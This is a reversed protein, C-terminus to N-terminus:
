RRRRHPSTSEDPSEMTWLHDPRQDFLLDLRVAEAPCPGCSAQAPSCHRRLEPASLDKGGRRRQPQGPGRPRPGGGHGSPCPARRRCGRRCRGATFRLWISTPLEVATSSRYTDGAHGATRDLPCADVTWRGIRRDKAAAGRRWDRAAATDVMDADPPSTICLRRLVWQGMSGTLPVIGDRPIRPEPAPRSAATSRAAHVVPRLAWGGGEVGAGVDDACAAGALRGSCGVARLTPQNVRAAVPSRSTWSATAARALCYPAL